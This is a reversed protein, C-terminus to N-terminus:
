GSRVRMGGRCCGARAGRATGPLSRTPAARGRGPVGAPGCRGGQYSRAPPGAGHRLQLRGTARCGDGPRSASGARRMLWRRRRTRGPVRRARGAAACRALATSRRSRLQVDVPRGPRRRVVGGGDGVGSRAISRSRVQATARRVEAYRREPAARAHRERQPFEQLTRGERLLGGTSHAKRRRGGPEPRFIALDQACAGRRWGGAALLASAVEAAIELLPVRGRRRTRAEVRIAQGLSLAYQADASIRGFCTLDVGSYAMLGMLNANTPRASPVVSFTGM